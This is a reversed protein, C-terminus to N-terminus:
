SEVNGGISKGDRVGDITVDAGDSKSNSPRMEDSDGECAGDCV